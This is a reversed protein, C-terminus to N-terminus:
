PLKIIEVSARIGSPLAVEKQLRIHVTCTADVCVPVTVWSTGPWYLPRPVIISLPRAGLAARVARASHVNDNRSGSWRMGDESGQDIDRACVSICTAIQFTSPLPSNNDDHANSITDIRRALEVECVTVHLDVYFKHLGFTQLGFSSLQKILLSDICVFPHCSVIHRPVDADASLAHVFANFIHRIFTVHSWLHQRAIPNIRSDISEAERQWRLRLERGRADAFALTLAQRVYPSLAVPQTVEHEFDLINM